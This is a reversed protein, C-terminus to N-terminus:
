FPIDDDTIVSPDSPEPATATRTAASRAPAPAPTSTTTRLNRGFLSDLERLEKPNLPTLELAKGGGGTSIGWKERLEGKLDNEHNCFLDVEKGVLSQHQPHSPDFPGFGKGTYGLKELIDAVRDITNPTITQFITREYQFPEQTFSGNAAVTGLVKVRIVIQSNGTSAKSLGQATIEGIYNGIQYHPGNAM